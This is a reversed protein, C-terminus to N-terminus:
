LVGSRPGWRVQMNPLFADACVSLMVMGIGRVDFDPELKRNALGFIILGSCVAFAALFEWRSVIKKRWVVAIIMTPILKCSRFIVQPPPPPLCPLVQHILYTHM